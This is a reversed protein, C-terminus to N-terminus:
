APSLLLKLFIVCFVCFSCLQTVQVESMESIQTRWGGRSPFHLQSRQPTLLQCSLRPSVSLHWQGAVFDRNNGAVAWEGPCLGTKLPSLLSSFKKLVACLSVLPLLFSCTVAVRISGVQLPRPASFPSKLSM